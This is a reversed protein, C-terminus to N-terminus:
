FVVSLSVNMRRPLGYFSKRLLLVTRILSSVTSRSHTLGATTPQKWSTRRTLCTLCTVTRRATGALRVPLNYGLHLDMVGANPLQWSQARDGADTRSFPNWDSYHSAYFKYVLQSRLGEVPFVSVGLALQTQPADGVKLDKIYYNYEDQQRVRGAFNTYRGSVDDTDSM